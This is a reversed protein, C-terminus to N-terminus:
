LCHDEIDRFLTIATLYIRYKSKDPYVKTLPVSIVRQNTRTVLVQKESFHQIRPKNLDKAVSTKGIVTVLNSCLVGQNKSLLRIKKTM